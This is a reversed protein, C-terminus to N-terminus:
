DTVGLISLIAPACETSRVSACAAPASLAAVLTGWAAVFVGVSVVSTLLGVALTVAVEALMVAVGAAEVALVRPWRFRLALSSWQSLGRMILKRMMVVEM